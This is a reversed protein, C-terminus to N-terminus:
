SYAPETDLIDADRSPLCCFPRGLSWKRLLESISCSFNGFWGHVTRSRIKNGPKVGFTQKPPRTKCTGLNPRWPNPLLFVALNYDLSLLSLSPCCPCSLSFLVSLRGSLPLKM